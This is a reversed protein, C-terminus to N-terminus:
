NIKFFLDLFCYPDQVVFVVEEEATLAVIASQVDRLKAAYSPRQTRRRLHIIKRALEPNVLGFDLHCYLCCGELSVRTAYKAVRLQLNLHFHLTKM